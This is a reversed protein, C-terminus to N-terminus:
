SLKDPARMPLQDQLAVPIKRLTSLRVARQGNGHHTYVAAGPGNFIMEPEGAASLKIVLLHQPQQDGRFVLSEGQTTRIQVLRTKDRTRANHLKSSSPLLELDFWQAALVEGLSEVAHGDPVFSRKPYMRELATTLAFVHHIIEDVSQDSM